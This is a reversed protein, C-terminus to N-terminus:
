EQFGKKLTHHKRKETQKNRKIKARSETEKSEQRGKCDPM